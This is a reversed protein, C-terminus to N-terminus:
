VNGGLGTAQEGVGVDGVCNGAGAVFDDVGGAFDGFDVGLGAAEPLLPAAFSNM